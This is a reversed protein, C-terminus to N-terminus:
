LTASHADQAARGPPGESGLIIAGHLAAVESGGGKGKQTGREEGAMGQGLPSSAGALALRQDHGDAARDVRDVRM